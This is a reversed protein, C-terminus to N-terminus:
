SRVLKDTSCIQQFIREGGGNEPIIIRTILLNLTGRHSRWHRRNYRVKEHLVKFLFRQRREVGRQFEPPAINLVCNDNNILVSLHPLGEFFM